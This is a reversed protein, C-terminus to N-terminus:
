DPVDTATFPGSPNWPVVALRRLLHFPFRLRVTLLPPLNVPIATSTSLHVGSGSLEYFIKLTSVLNPLSVMPNTLFLLVDDAYMNLKVRQAGKVYGRIDPNLTISQVLPEIVLAFLLPSLPCDQRTRHGLAFYESNCGPLRIRTYPHTYLARFGHVFEGGFGFKSLIRETYSWLLSDFAKHIDLSLMRLQCFSLDANQIINCALCINVTIQRTPILTTIVKALRDALLRGFLKFNNNIVSICYALLNASPYPGEETKALSVNNALLMDELFHNLTYSWFFDQLSAIINSIEDTSFPSHM